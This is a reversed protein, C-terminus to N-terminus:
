FVTSTPMLLARFYNSTEACCIDEGDGTRLAHNIVM